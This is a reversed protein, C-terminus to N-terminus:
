VGYKNRKAAAVPSVAHTSKPERSKDNVADVMAVGCADYAAHMMDHELDTYPVALNWRDIWSERSVHDPMTKGDTAALALGIRYMDYIRDATGAVKHAPNMTAAVKKNLKGQKATGGSTSQSASVGESLIENIRM